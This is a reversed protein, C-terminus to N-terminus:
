ALLNRRRKRTLALLALPIIDVQLQVRSIEVGDLELPPLVGESSTPGALALELVLALELLGEVALARLLLAPTRARQEKLGDEAGVADINWWSRHRSMMRSTM